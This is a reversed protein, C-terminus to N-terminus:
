LMKRVDKLLRKPVSASDAVAVDGESQVHSTENSVRAHQAHAPKAAGHARLLQGAYNVSQKRQVTQWRVLYGFLPPDDSVAAAFGKQSSRPAVKTEWTSNPLIM